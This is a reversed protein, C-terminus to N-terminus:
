SSELAGAFRNDPIANQDDVVRIREGSSLRDQGTVVVADQPGLGRTIEVRGPMRAGIGVSVRRAVGDEAVFVYQEDGRVMVAQEPIVLAEREQLTVTASMFQGPRLRGEPNDILARVPLTRSVPDVRTGLKALEGRFPQDPYAPAVGEVPLGVRLDALFREPISFKLEMRDIEDLTTLIAGVAIYAGESLDSLGVVGAFPARIRHNELRVLAAEREADAIRVTTALEDVQSQSISNNARLSRARELQRRAEALRAEIVRLDARAQRDDLQVLVDGQAVRAGPTLNLSVVRGSVEATLEVARLASLSGVSKVLDRVTDTEPLRTNVVRAPRERQSDVATHTGLREFTFLAGAGVGVLVLAVLWQKGM